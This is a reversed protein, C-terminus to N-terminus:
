VGKPISYLIPGVVVLALDEGRYKQPPQAPTIEALTYTAVSSPQVTAQGTGRLTVTTMGLQVLLGIADARDAWPVIMKLVAM